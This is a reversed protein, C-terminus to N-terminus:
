SSILTLKGDSSITFKEDPSQSSTWNGVLYAPKFKKHNQKSSCSISTLFM